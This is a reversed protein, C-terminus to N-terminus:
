RFFIQGPRNQNNKIGYTADSRACIADWNENWWYASVWIAMSFEGDFELPPLDVQAQRSNKMGGFDILNLGDRTIWFSGSIKAPPLRDFAERTEEGEGEHLPYWAIENPLMLAHAWFSLTLVLLLIRKM